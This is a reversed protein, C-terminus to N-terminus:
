RRQDLSLVTTLIFDELWGRFMSRAKTTKPMMVSQNVGCGRRQRGGGEKSTGKKLGKAAMKMRQVTGNKRM